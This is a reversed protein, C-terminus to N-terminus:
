FFYAFKLILSNLTEKTEIKERQGSQLVRSGNNSTVDALGRQLHLGLTAYQAGQMPLYLGTGIGWAFNFLKVDRGINERELRISTADIKGTSKGILGMNFEPFAFYLNFSKNPLMIQYRLGMPIEFIQVSYTIQTDDPLPKEGTNYKSDSLDSDPLLNGGFKHLLAGGQSFSFMAGGYLVMWDTVYYEGMGGFKFGVKVGNSNILNNNSGMWGITPSAVIGFSAENTQALLLSCVMSGLIISIIKKM